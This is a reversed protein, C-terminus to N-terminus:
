ETEESYAAVLQDRTLPELDDTNADHAQVAYDIWDQKNASKKPQPPAPNLDPTGEQLPESAGLVKWGKEEYTPIASVHCMGDVEIDPHRIAVFGPNLEM